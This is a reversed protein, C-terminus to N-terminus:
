SVERVWFQTHLDRGSLGNSSYLTAVGSNSKWQLYFTHSGAALGEILRVFSIGLLNPKDTGQAREVMMLGDTGGQRQGDVEVDFYIWQQSASGAVSGYFGVMVDGGSTNLTCGFRPQNVSAFSTTSSSFTVNESSTYQYSPPTKLAELNDRLHTNLDGAILPENVWTKPQTWAM